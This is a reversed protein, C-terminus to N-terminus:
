FSEDNSLIEFITAYLREPEMDFRLDGHVTWVRKTYVTQLYVIKGTITKRPFIVFTKEWNTVDIM